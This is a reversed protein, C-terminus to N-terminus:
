ISEQTLLYETIHSNEVPLNLSCSPDTPASPGYRNMLDQDDEAEQRDAQWCYPLEWSARTGPPDASLPYFRLQLSTCLVSRITHPVSIVAYVPLVVLEDHPVCVHTGVLLYFSFTILITAGFWDMVIKNITSCLSPFAMKSFTVNSPFSSGPQWPRTCFGPVDVNWLTNILDQDLFDPHVNNIVIENWTVSQFGPPEQQLISMCLSISLKLLSCHILEYLDWKVRPPVFLMTSKEVEQINIAM